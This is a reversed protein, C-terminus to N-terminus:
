FIVLYALVDIEYYNPVVLTRFNVIVLWTYGMETESFKYVISM